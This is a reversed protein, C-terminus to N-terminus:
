VMPPNDPSIRGIHHTDSADNEKSCWGSTKIACAVDDTDLYEIRMDNNDSAGLDDELVEVFSGCVRGITLM